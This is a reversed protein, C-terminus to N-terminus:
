SRNMPSSSSQQMTIYARVPCDGVSDALSTTPPNTGGPFGEAGRERAKRPLQDRGGNFNGTWWGSQKLLTFRGFLLSLLVCLLSRLTQTAIASDDWDWNWAGAPSCISTSWPLLSLSEANPSSAYTGHRHAKSGWSIVIWHNMSLM